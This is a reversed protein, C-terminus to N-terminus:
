QKLGDMSVGRIVKVIHTVEGDHEVAIKTPGDLHTHLWKVMDRWADGDIIITRGNPLVVTGEIIAQYVLEAVVKNSAVRKGEVLVTRRGVTLLNAALEREKPPRGKPNGSKGKQFKM